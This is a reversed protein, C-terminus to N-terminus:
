AVKKPRTWNEQKKNVQKRKVYCKNWYKKERKQNELLYNSEELKVNNDMESSAILLM